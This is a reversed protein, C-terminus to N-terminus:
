NESLVYYTVSSSPMYICLTSCHFPKITSFFRQPKSTDTLDLDDCFCSLAFIVSDNGVTRQKRCCWYTWRLNSTRLNETAVFRSSTHFTTLTHNQSIQLHTLPEFLSWNQLPKLHVPAVTCVYLYPCIYWCICVTHM